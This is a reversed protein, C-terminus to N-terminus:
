SYFDDLVSMAALGQLDDVTAYSSLLAQLDGATAFTSDAQAKTYYGGLASKAAFQERADGKTVYRKDARPKIEKKWVKGWNTVSSAIAPSVLMAWRRGDGSRINSGGIGVEDAVDGDVHEKGRTIAVRLRATAM